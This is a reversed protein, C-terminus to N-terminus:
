HQRDDDGQEINHLSSRGTSEADRDLKPASLDCLISASSSESEHSVSYKQGGTNYIRSDVGVRLYNGTQLNNLVNTYCTELTDKICVGLSSSVM